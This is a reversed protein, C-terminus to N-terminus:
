CRLSNLSVSPLETVIAVPEKNLHLSLRLWKAYFDDATKTRFISDNYHQQVLKNKIDFYLKEVQPPVM